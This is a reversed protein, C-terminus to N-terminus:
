ARLVLVSQLAGPGVSAGEFDAMEKLALVGVELDLENFAAVLTAPGAEIMADIWEFLRSPSLRRDRWCDLDLAAVRQESSAFEM